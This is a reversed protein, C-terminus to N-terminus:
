FLILHIWFDVESNVKSQEPRIYPAGSSLDTDSRRQGPTDNRPHRGWTIESEIPLNSRMARLSM